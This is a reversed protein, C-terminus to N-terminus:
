EGVWWRNNLEAIKKLTEDYEGDLIKNANLQM